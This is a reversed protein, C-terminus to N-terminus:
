RAPTPIPQRKASITLNERPTLLTEGYETAVCATVRVGQDCLFDTLERGETTGAFVCLKCM